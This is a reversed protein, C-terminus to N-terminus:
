RYSYLKNGGGVSALAANHKGDLYAAYRTVAASNPNIKQGKGPRTAQLGAVGGDYAVVPADAMRVIYAKNTPGKGQVKGPEAGSLAPAIAASAALAFALTRLRISRIM